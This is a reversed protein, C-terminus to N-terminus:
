HRRRRRAAYLALGGLVGLGAFGALADRTTVRAHRPLRNATATAPVPPGGIPEADGLASPQAWVPLVGHPPSYLCVAQSDNWASGTLYRWGPTREQGRQCGVWVQMLRGASWGPPQGTATGGHGPYYTWTEHPSYWRWGQHMPTPGTLDWWPPGPQWCSGAHALVAAPPRSIGVTFLLPTVAGAAASMGPASGGGASAEIDALYTGPAAGAPPSVTVPIVASAGAALHVSSQSVVLWRRPYGFHVWSPPVPRGLGYLSQSRYLPVVALTLTESGSGTNTVQVGHVAALTTGGADAPYTGGPRMPTSTCVPWVGIGTGTSAPAATSATAAGPVALVALAVAGAAAVQRARM